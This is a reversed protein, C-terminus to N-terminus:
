FKISVSTKDSKGCLIWFYIEDIDCRPLSSIEREVLTEPDIMSFYKFITRRVFLSGLDLLAQALFFDLYTDCYTGSFKYVEIVRQVDGQRRGVYADYQANEQEITQVSYEGDSTSSRSWSKDLGGGGDSFNVNEKTDTM